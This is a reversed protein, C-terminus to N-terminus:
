KRYVAVLGNPSSCASVRRFQCLDGEDVPLLSDRGHFAGTLESDTFPCTYHSTTWAGPEPASTHGSPTCGAVVTLAIAALVGLKARPVVQADNSRRRHRAM